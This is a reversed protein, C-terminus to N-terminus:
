TLFIGGLLYKFKIKDSLYGMVLRSLGNVLGSGISAAWTLTMDDIGNHTGFIKFSYTFIMPFINGLFLLM